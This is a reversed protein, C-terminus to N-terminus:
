QVIVTRARDGLEAVMTMLGGTHNAAEFGEQQLVRLALYSRMGSMCHLAVARGAAAERVEDLRDRLETHPINLAGPIHGRNFEGVSRVDLILREERMQDLDDTSWTPMKGDLVNAAMMGAMNVPDKASGYPPSYALDLDILDYVTMGAKIATALVDIRKDVGGEGAAQAGLVKGDDGFHVRMHIMSAGPFYGAHNLPHLSITHHVIGETELTRKNAGTMAATLAGVRVISTGITKPVPHSMDGVIADAVLRGARNAPGALAVPKRAGTVLDVSTAADGMSWVNSINTRGYEDVVIAGNEVEVGAKEWRETRPRVGASLLIIEAEVRSGDSLVAIDADDGEEIEVVSTSTHVDIGMRRLEDTVYFATEDDLPPLVHDAFEVITTKLGRMRLAEAAELGIFGAGIVVASKATNAVEDINLADAVTRLTTVRKSNIGPIDPRFADAGPSLILEDYDLEYSGDPGEVTVKKADPDLETVTSNVRADLNLSEKLSEPTQVLLASQDTIEGSVYYPLGCNAFSVEPGAELVIIDADEQLRRLRAAASMGGAVGGVVVIKM